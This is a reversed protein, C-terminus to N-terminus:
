ICLMIFFSLPPLIIFIIRPIFPMSGPMRQNKGTKHVEFGPQHRAKQQRPVEMTCILTYGYGFNADMEPNRRALFRMCPRMWHSEFKCSDFGILYKANERQSSQTAGLRCIGRSVSLFCKRLLFFGVVILLAHIPAIEWYFSPPKFIAVAL